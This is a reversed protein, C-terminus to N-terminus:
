RSRVAAAIQAPTEGIFRRLSRTLHPQDFYGARWVVDAISVGQELLAAARGAREIQQMTRRTLGTAQLFRSQVSRVSLDAGDGHLARDVVPDRVLLGKRVLRDVFVDANEYGPYEWASGDMWFRRRSAEPLYVDRGDSLRGPPLIPMFTGVEFEIGVFEADDWPCHMPTAVTEPGRVTFYTQGRYKTLVMEWHTAARSIFTGTRESHSRWVQGVFPSDSARYEIVFKM